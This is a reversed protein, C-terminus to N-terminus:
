KEKAADISERCLVMFDEASMMQCEAHVLLIDCDIKEGQAFKSILDHHAKHGINYNNAGEEYLKEAEDIQNTRAYRMAEIFCGKAAGVAAIIECSIESLDKM